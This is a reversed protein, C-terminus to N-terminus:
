RSSKAQCFDSLAKTIMKSKDGLFLAKRLDNCIKEKEDEPIPVEDKSALVTM